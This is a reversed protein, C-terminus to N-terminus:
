TQIKKLSKSKNKLELSTALLHKEFFYKKFFHGLDGYPCMKPLIFLDNCTPMISIDENLM